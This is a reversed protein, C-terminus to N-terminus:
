VENHLGEKKLLNKIALTFGRPGISEIKVINDMNIDVHKGDPKQVLYPLDVQRFMPEDNKGEGIGATVVDIIHERYIVTLTKVATGKDTDGMLHYFRTGPYVKLGNQASFQRVSELLSPDKLIFPEDHRRVKAMAALAPELNLYQAVEEVSMDGFGALQDNFVEKMEKFVQRIRDYNAGLEIARYGDAHELPELQQFRRSQEEPIYIAGGNEVIFPWTNGTKERFYVVEAFSKSTCFVLPINHKRLLEMGEKSYEYSYTYYDLLTGDLDTFVILQSHM